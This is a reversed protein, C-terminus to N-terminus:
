KKWIVHGNLAVQGISKSLKTIQTLLEKPLSEADFKRIWVKINSEDFTQSINELKFRQNLMVPMATLEKSMQLQNSSINKIQSIQEAYGANVKNLSLQIASHNSEIYGKFVTNSYLSPVPNVNFLVQSNLPKDHSLSIKVATAESGNAFSTMLFPQWITKDTASEYASQSRSNVDLQSFSAQSTKTSGTTLATTNASENLPLHKSFLFQKFVMLESPSNDSNTVDDHEQNANQQLAEIAGNISSEVGKALANYFTATSNIHSTQQNSNANAGVLLGNPINTIM